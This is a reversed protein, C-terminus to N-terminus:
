SRLRATMRALLTAARPLPRPNPNCPPLTLATTGDGRFISGPHDFGPRGVPLYIEPEFPLDAEPPALVVAPIETKPLSVPGGLTALWLIADTERSAILRAGDYRYVDHEIGEPRFRLRLPYGAQWLATQTAGTLNEAGGLALLAARGTHNRHRVIANAALAVLDASAPDLFAANWAIVGYRAESFARAAEVMEPPAPRSALAAAFQALAAPLDSLARLLHVAGPAPEPGLIFVRRKMEGEAFFSPTAGFVREWLRPQARAPDPGLILVVDARNRAESFTTVMWGQERAAPWNRYSAASGQHDVIGGAQEALLLATGIACQDAAMGGILPARAERLLSAAAVVAEEEGVEKGRIRASALGGAKGFREAAIRCDIGPLLFGGREAIPSLDDCGLGCAACVARTPTTM